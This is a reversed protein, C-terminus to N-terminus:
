SIHMRELSGDSHHTHLQNLSSSYIECTAESDMVLSHRKGRWLVCTVNSDLGRTMNLTLELRRGRLLSTMGVAKMERLM